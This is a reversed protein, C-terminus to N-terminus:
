EPTIGIGQFIAAMVVDRIAAVDYSQGLLAEVRGDNVLTVFGHVTALIALAQQAPDGPRILKLQQCTEVDAVLDRFTAASTHQLAQQGANFLLDGSYMVRYYAPYELAFEIYATGAAAFQSLPAPDAAAKSAQMTEQMLAFGQEVVAVLLEDKDAFHRYPATHSVGVRRAVERITLGQPGQENIIELAQALLAARLDGHHYTTKEAKM